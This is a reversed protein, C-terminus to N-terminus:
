AGAMEFGFRGCGVEIMGVVMAVGEGLGGGKSIGFGVM